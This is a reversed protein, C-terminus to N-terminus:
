HVHNHELEESEDASVPSSRPEKNKKSMMETAESLAIAKLSQISIKGKGNILFGAKGARLEAGHGHNQLTKDIYGRFHGKSGVAKLMVWGRAKTTSEDLIKLSGGRIRGIRTSSADVSFFDYNNADTFHHILFFRGNFNDLNVLTSLEIDTIPGGALFYQSRGQDTSIVLTSDKTIFQINKTESRPFSFSNLFDKAALTSAQWSWSGNIDAQFGSPINVPTKSSTTSVGLGFEFVLRGGLEATQSVLFFGIVGLILFFFYGNRKLSFTKKRLVLRIIVYLALFIATYLGWDAHQSIATYARTPIELSDAAERGSFYASVAGIAAFTYLALVSSRLWTQTKLFLSSIDLLVALSILAIPFHIILPHINPAWEPLLQM